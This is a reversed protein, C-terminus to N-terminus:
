KFSILIQVVLTAVIIGIMLIYAYNWNRLLEIDHFLVLRLAILGAIVGGAFPLLQQLNTSGRMILPLEIAIGILIGFFLWSRVMRPIIVDFELLISDLFSRPIRFEFRRKDSLIMDYDIKDILNETRNYVHDGHHYHFIESTNRKVNHKSIEFRENVSVSVYVSANELGPNIRRPVPISVGFASKKRLTEISEKWRLVLQRYGDEHPPFRIVAVIQNGESPLLFREVLLRRTLASDIPRELMTSLEDMPLIPIDISDLKANLDSLYGVFPFLYFEEHEPLFITLKLEVEM